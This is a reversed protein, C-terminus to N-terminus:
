ALKLYDLTNQALRTELLGLLNRMYIMKMMRMMMMMMACIIRPRCGALTRM